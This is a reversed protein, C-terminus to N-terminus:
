AELVAVIDGANHSGADASAESTYYELGQKRANNAAAANNAVDGALDTVNGITAYITEADM